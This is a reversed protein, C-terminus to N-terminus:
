NIGLAEKITNLNQSIADIVNSLNSDNNDLYDPRITYEGKEDKAYGIIVKIENISNSVTDKLLKVEDDFSKRADVILKSLADVKDQLSM